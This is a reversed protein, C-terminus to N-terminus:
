GIRFKRDMVSVWLMKYSVRQVAVARFQAETRWAGGDVRLRNGDVHTITQSRQAGNVNVLWVEGKKFQM